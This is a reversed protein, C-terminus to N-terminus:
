RGHGPAGLGGLYVREWRLSAGLSLVSIVAGIALPAWDIGYLKRAVVSLAFALLMIGALGFVSWRTRGRQYGKISLGTRERDRRVMIAAAATFFAVAMAQFPLPLAYAMILGGMAGAFLLHRWLPVRAARALRGRAEAMAALSAHADETKTM